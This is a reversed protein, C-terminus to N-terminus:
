EQAMAAEVAQPLLCVRPGLISKVGWQTGGGPRRIRGGEPVAETGKHAILEGGGAVITDRSSETAPAVLALGGYGLLKAEIAAFIRRQRENLFPKLLEFREEIHGTNM